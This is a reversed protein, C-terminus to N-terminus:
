AAQKPISSFIKWSPQLHAVQTAVASIGALSDVMIAGVMDVEAVAPVIPDSSVSCAFASKTQIASCLSDINRSTSLCCDSSLRLLSSSSFILRSTASPIRLPLLCATAAPDPCCVTSGPVLEEAFQTWFIISSIFFMGNPGGPRDEFSARNEPCLEVDM